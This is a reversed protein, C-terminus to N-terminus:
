KAEMMRQAEEVTITGLPPAMYFIPRNELTNVPWEDHLYIGGGIIAQQVDAEAKKQEIELLIKIPQIIQPNTRLEKIEKQLKKITDYQENIKAVRDLSEGPTEIHPSNLLQTIAMSFAILSVAFAVIGLTQSKM